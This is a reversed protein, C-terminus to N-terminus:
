FRVDQVEQPLESLTTLPTEDAGTRVVGEIRDKAAGYGSTRKASFGYTLMMEKLAETVIELDAKAEARIEDGNKRGILDFPVYLLSFTGQAGTPVCELYIPHTGAKTTRSHPNIVEVDILNFFTPYFMLRGSHHLIDKKQDSSGFHQRVLDCYLSKAEPKMDDLFKAFEKSKDADEGKEDGFLLSLKLRKQVFEDNAQEKEKALHVQMATWRLIGKWSSAAVMPMKFVKEKRVPNISDAVYFLDDDRSIYPKALTFDFQLVISGIPLRDLPPSPKLLSLKNLRVLEVKILKNTYPVNAPKSAHVLHKYDEVRKRDDNIGVLLHINTAM